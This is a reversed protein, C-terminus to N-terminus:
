ANFLQETLALLTEMDLQEFRVNASQGCAALAETVQEKTMSLGASLANVATKRRQAFGAKVVKLVRQLQEEGCDTNRLACHPDGGFRGEACSFPTM